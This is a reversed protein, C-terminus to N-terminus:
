FITGFVHTPGVEVIPLAYALTKGSGTPASVCVDRPPNFPLYLGKAGKEEPLLFPLLKTQVQVFEPNTGKASTYASM